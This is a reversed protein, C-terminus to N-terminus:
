RHEISLGVGVEKLNAVRSLAIKSNLDICHCAHVEGAQLNQFYELTKNLQRESPQLLHFGGIVDIVKDRSCVKKAYEIINCIGAHSCGTIVVIGDKSKYALATDDKLFDPRPGEKTYVEGLPELNEFDNTREIEGLFVLRNTLWFPHKTLNVGFHRKLKSESITCGIEKLAGASKTQFVDPHAVLTPSKCPVSEIIAETYLKLLPDLGGTHDLHGHSLVIFDSKLLNLNMKGANIIFANSYGVDFLVQTSDDMILYSVGPEGLFYRDILTNNDILVTLKM